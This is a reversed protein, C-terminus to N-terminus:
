SVTEDLTKKFSEVFFEAEQMSLVLPALLRIMKKGSVGTFIHKGFLLEKRIPAVECNMEVGLMLGRGRVEKVLPSSPISKRIYEGVKYANEMLNEDEIIDLVALAGAMALYNGGFTTGLMGKVPEFEPSILIGGIPFGNAMGKAFSIIDPRINAWQHAFFHGTRGCGSQVEDLILPVRSERCVGCLAVM